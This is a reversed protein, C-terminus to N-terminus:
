SRRELDTLLLITADPDTASKVRKATMRWTKRAERLEAEANRGKPAILVGGPEIRPAVLPLLRPLASVARATVVEYRSSLHEVRCAEITTNTLGAAVSTRELFAAKKAISECLTVRMTPRRDQALAALPLGPFGGGSGVDLLSRAGIPVCSWLQLSDAYHREWRHALTARSVLNTHANTERFESDIASLRAVERETLDYARRLDALSGVVDRM